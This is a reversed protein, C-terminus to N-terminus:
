FSNFYHLCASSYWPLCANKINYIKAYSIPTIISSEKFGLFKLGDSLPPVGKPKYRSTEM